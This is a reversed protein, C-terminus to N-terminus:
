TKPSRSFLSWPANAVVGAGPDVGTIPGQSYAWNYGDVSTPAFIYQLVHTGTEVKVINGPYYYDAGNYLGRYFTPGSSLDPQNSINWFPMNVNETLLQRFGLLGNLVEAHGIVRHFNDNWPAYPWKETFTSGDFLSTATFTPGVISEGPAYAVCPAISSNCLTIWVTVNPVIGLAATDPVVGENWEASVLAGNTPPNQQNGTFIDDDLSQGTVVGDGILDTGFVRSAGAAGPASGNWFEVFGCRVKFRRPDNASRFRRITSPFNYIKFPHFGTLGQRRMQVQGMNRQLRALQNTFQNNQNYRPAAQEWARPISGPERFSQLRSGEMPRAFGGRAVFGPFGRM